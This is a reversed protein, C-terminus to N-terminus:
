ILVEKGSLLYMRLNRRRDLARDTHISGSIKFFHGVQALEAGSPLPLSSEPLDAYVNANM